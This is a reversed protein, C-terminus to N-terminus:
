AKKEETNQFLRLLFNEQKRNEMFLVLHQKLVSYASFFYTFVRNLFNYIKHYVGPNNIDIYTKGTGTYYKHYIVNKLESNYTMSDNSSVLHIEYETDSLQRIWRATHISDSFAVFLIKEKKAM